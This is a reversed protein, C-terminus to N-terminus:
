FLDYTKKYGKKNCRGRIQFLDIIRGNLNGKIPTKGIFGYLKGNTGNISFFHTSYFSKYNKEILFNKIIIKKQNEDVFAFVEDAKYNTKNLKNIYNGTGFQYQIESNGKSEQLNIKFEYQDKIGAFSQWDFKMHQSGTLTCTLNIENKFESKVPQFDFIYGFFIIFFPVFKFFNM